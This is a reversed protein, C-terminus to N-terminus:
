LENAFGLLLFCSGGPGFGRGMMPFRESSPSLGWFDKPLSECVYQEEGVMALSTICVCLWNKQLRIIGSTIRAQSCLRNLTGQNGKASVKAFNAVGM